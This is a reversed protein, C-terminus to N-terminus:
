ALGSDSAPEVVGVVGSGAPGDEGIVGDVVVDRVPVPGDGVPADPGDVHEGVSEAQGLGDVLAQVQELGMERIVLGVVDEVDGVVGQAVARAELVDLQAAVVGGEEVGEPRAVAPSKQRRNVGAWM